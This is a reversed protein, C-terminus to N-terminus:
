GAAPITNGFLGQVNLTHDAGAATGVVTARLVTGARLMLPYGLPVGFGVRGGAPIAPFFRSALQCNVQVGATQIRVAAFGSVNTAAAAGILLEASLAYLLLDASLTLNATLNALAGVAATGNSTILIDPAYFGGVEVVPQVTEAFGAPQAGLTRLRFLELLGRPAKHLPFPM